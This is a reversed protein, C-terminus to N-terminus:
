RSERSFAQGGLPFTRTVDAAYCKYEAGADLLLNLKGKLPSDNRIYHLTAASTGSAVISEYAQNKCGKEMCRQVFLAELEAENTCSQSARLVAKHGLATVASAYRMLAIEYEDKVVRALEIADKLETLSVKDFSLFTVDDSVRNAIAYVTSQPNSPLALEANLNNTTICEDIDYTEMAEKKLLPLGSWIVDDPDIPPIFLTLKGTTMHYTMACDPLECGTLYLFHRRQRFPAGQDCDEHMTSKQGEVFLVGNPDGGRSVLIDAVKRAHAKAPYKGQPPSPFPPSM